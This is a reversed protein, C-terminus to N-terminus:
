LVKDYDHHAKKLDDHKGIDLWYEKIPFTAINLHNNLCVNLLDPMDMYQNKKLFVLIHPELLYIGANVFFREVPKEIISHLLHSNNRKVVGYPIMQEHERIGLTADVESEKHYRLLSEFDISTMIDANVVFFADLPIEEFLSLAGATGLPNSEELYKITVGWQQGNEFYSKIMESKYNVSIYFQHFGHKIFNELLIELVPKNGVRILPKPCDITLPHLRKGLGGAMIVVINNRKPFSLLSDLTSFNVIRNHKDVIPLHYLKLSQLKALLKERNDEPSATTPHQNMIKQVPENLSINKLICRRIDGDTVIGLLCQKDNIVIAARMGEKDIVEIAHLISDDPSLLINRWDGM